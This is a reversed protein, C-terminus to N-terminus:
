EYRLAEVPNLMAAKFAPYVAALVTILMAAGAIISVDGIDMFRPISEFYYIERPFVEFGTFRELAGQILDLYKLFIIAATVGIFTGIVGIFIGEILFISLVGTSSLGIAKLIGVDKTKEMVMMILTSIINTAAVAVAMALVIFMVSKETKLAAFLRRNRDAWSKARLGMPLLIENLNRKVTNARAIDEIRVSIGHVGDGLVYIKQATSLPIFLLNADYEYMGSDFIGSVEFVMRNKLFGLKSKVGTIPLIIEVKDGPYLQFKKSFEKGILISDSEWKLNKNRIYKSLLSVKKEDEINIGRLLVGTISNGIGVLIQGHVFPTASIVEPTK